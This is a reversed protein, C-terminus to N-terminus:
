RFLFILIGMMIVASIVLLVTDSKKESSVNDEKNLIETSENREEKSTEKQSTFDEM